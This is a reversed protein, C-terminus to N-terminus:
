PATNKEYKALADIQEPTLRGKFGTMLTNARGNTIADNVQDLSKAALSAPTLAPGLGQMGQRNAGHCAACNAAFLASADIGATAPTTAPPATTRTTTPTTTTKTTTTATTTPAAGPGCAAAFLATALPVAFLVLKTKSM